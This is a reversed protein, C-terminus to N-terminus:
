RRPASLQILDKLQISAAGSPPDAPLEASRTMLLLFADSARRSPDLDPGGQM